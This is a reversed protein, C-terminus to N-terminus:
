AHSDAAALSELFRVSERVADVPGTGPAPMEGVIAQDQELVYWGDFGRKTLERVISAIPVDGSGMPTFIGERVADFLTIEKANLREAVSRKVDKLHVHAIRDYNERVFRLPDTGGIFLHGMDFTWMVDSKDLVHNVDDATEVLTNVHPHIAQTLGHEACIEDVIRFGEAMTKWGSKDLPVRPSWDADVVVATVFHTAGAARLTAAAEVAETRLTDRQASDHLVLPVFGAIVQMEHRTATAVVDAPSDGLWGAMGLETAVIGLGRMESLVRDPDLLLGWGPVECIGWSIPASALHRLYGPRTM